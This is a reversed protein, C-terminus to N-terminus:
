SIHIVCLCQPVALGKHDWTCMYVCVFECLCACMCVQFIPVAGAGSFRNGFTGVLNVPEELWKLLGGYSLPWVIKNNWPLSVTFFLLMSLSFSHFISTSPFFNFGGKDWVILIGRPCTCVHICLHTHVCKHVHMASSVCMCYVHTWYM